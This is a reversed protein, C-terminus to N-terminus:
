RQIGGGRQGLSQDLGVRPDTAARLQDQLQASPDVSYKVQDAPNSLDYRYRVGSSGQYSPEQEGSHYDRTAASGTLGVTARGPLGIPPQGGITAVIGAIESMQNLSIGGSALAAENAMRLFRQQQEITSGTAAAIEALVSMENLSIEGTEQSHAAVLKRFWEEPDAATPQADSEVLRAQVPSPPQFEAKSSSDTIISDALGSIGILGGVAVAVLISQKINM